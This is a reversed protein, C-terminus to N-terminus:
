TNKSFLKPFKRALVKERLQHLEKEINAFDPQNVLRVIQEYYLLLEKSMKEYQLEIHQLDSETEINENNELLAIYFEIDFYHNTEALNVSAWHPAMMVFVQRRDQYFRIGCKNSHLVVIWNGFAEKDYKTTVVQFQGDFLYPFYKKLDSLVREIGKKKFM